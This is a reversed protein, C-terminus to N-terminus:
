MFKIGYKSLRNLGSNVNIATIKKVELSASLESIIAISALPMLKRRSINGYAIEAPIIAIALKINLANM